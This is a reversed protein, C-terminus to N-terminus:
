KAILLETLSECKKEHMEPASKQYLTTIAAAYPYPDDLYTSEFAVTADIYQDPIQLFVEAASAKFVFGGHTHYTLIQVLPSLGKALGIPEPDINFAKSIPDVDKLYCLDGESSEIFRRRTSSVVLEFRMVPKIRKYLEDVRMKDLSHFERQAGAYIQERTLKTIDTIIM